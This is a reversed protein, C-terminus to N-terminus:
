AAVATRLGSRITALTAPVGHKSTHGNSEAARMLIREAQAVELEGAAVMEACRASAWFLWHNRQDGEHLGLLFDVIGELRRWVPAGSGSRTSVASPPRPPALACIWGPLVALEGDPVSKITYGPSGPCTARPKIEVLPCRDLAGFRVAYADNARYWVHWGEGHSGNGPTRVVVCGSLDLVDGAEAAFDALRRMGDQWISGDVALATDLDLCAFRGCGLLEAGRRRVHTDISPSWDFGQRRSLQYSNLQAPNEPVPLGFKRFAGATVRAPERRGPEQRPVFRAPMLVEPVVFEQGNM